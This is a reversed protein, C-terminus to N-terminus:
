NVWVSAVPFSCPVAESLRPGWTDRLGTGVQCIAPMLFLLRKSLKGGAAQAIKEDKSRQQELCAKRAPLQQPLRLTDKGAFRGM